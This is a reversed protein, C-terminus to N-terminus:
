TVNNCDVFQLLQKMKIQIVKCECYETEISYYKLIENLRLRFDM